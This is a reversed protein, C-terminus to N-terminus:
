RQCLSKSLSSIMQGPFTMYSRLTNNYVSNNLKRHGNCSRQKEIIVL